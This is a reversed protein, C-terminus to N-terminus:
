HTQYKTKGLITEAYTRAQYIGEDYKSGFKSQLDDTDMQFANDWQNKQIHDKQEERYQRAERSNGWSATKYHDEKDMMISPGDSRSFLGENAFDSAMHHKEKGLQNPLDKYAGGQLEGEAKGFARNEGLRADGFLEARAGNQIDHPELTPDKTAVNGADRLFSDELSGERVPLNGELFSKSLRDTSERPTGENLFADEVRSPENEPRFTSPLM